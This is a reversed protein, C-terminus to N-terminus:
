QRVREPKYTPQGSRYTDVRYTFEGDNTLFGLRTLSRRTYRNVELGEELDRLCQEQSETLTIKISM